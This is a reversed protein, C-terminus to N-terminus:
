WEFVMDQHENTKIMTEIQAAMRILADDPLYNLKLRIYAKINSRNKFDPKCLLLSFWQKMRENKHQYVEFMKLSHCLTASDMAFGMENFIIIIDKNRLNYYKKLIHVYFSRAEVYEIDRTKKFFDIGTIKKVERTITHTFM